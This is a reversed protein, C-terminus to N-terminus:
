EAAQQPDENDNALEWENFRRLELGHKICAKGMSIYMQAKEEREEPTMHTVPMGVENGDRKVIYYDQLHERDFGPLDIQKPATRDVNDGARKNIAQTVLSRTYQYGNYEWFDKHKGKNLGKKHGKCIANTVWSAIWPSGKEALDDLQKNIDSILKKHYSKM